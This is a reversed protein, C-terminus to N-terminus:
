EQPGMAEFTFNSRVTPKFLKDREEIHEGKRGTRNEFARENSLASSSCPEVGPPNMSGYENALESFSPRLSVAGAGNVIVVGFHELDFLLPVQGILLM